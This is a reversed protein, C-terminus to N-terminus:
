PNVHFGGPPTLPLTLTGSPNQIKIEMDGATITSLDYNCTLQTTNGTCSSNTYTNGNQTLTATANALNYGSIILKVNQLSDGLNISSPNIDFVRPFGANTTLMLRVKQGYQNGNFSYTPASTDDALPITIPALNSIGGYPVAAALYHTVGNVLCGQAGNLGCFFYENIPPLNNIGALGNSDTTPRQDNPIQNDYYYTTDTTATYKKYGGKIYIKAQGLPNGATDTTEIVMSNTRMPAIVLALYASQQSLIKQSSYTPQLSGAPKLTTITSYGSKTITIDYDLGSDPILGYFIAVGNVDTNDSVNVAPTLTPNLVTVTADAIANGSPDTVNIFLAGTTSATEAVRAAIQTDATALQTGGSNKVSIHAIKYDAPNTDSNSNNGNSNGPTFFNRCYKKKLDLTPYSGCGDFADDAYSISTTITYTIGNIKKTIVAPIYSNSIISGGSVALNDYPLSRLYEIQNSALSGAVAKQKAIVSSNVLAVFLTFFGITLSTLVALSVMLEVITFGNQWKLQKLMLM